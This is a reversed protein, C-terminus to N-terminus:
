STDCSSFMLLLMTEIWAAAVVSSSTSTQNNSFLIRETARSVERGLELCTLVLFTRGQMGYTVCYVVGWPGIKVAGNSWLLLLPTASIPPTPVTEDLDNRFCM